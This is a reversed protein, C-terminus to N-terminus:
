CSIIQLIRRACKSALSMRCIDVSPALVSEEVGERETRGFNGGIFQIKRNGHSAHWGGKADQGFACSSEDLMQRGNCWGV